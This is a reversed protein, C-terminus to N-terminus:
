GVPVGWLVRRARFGGICALPKPLAVGGLGYRTKLVPLALGVVLIGIRRQGQGHSALAADPLLLKRCPQGDHRGAYLARARRDEPDHRCKRWDEWRCSDLRAWCPRQRRRAPFCGHGRRCIIGLRVPARGVRAVVRHVCVAVVRALSAERWVALLRRLAGDEDELGQRFVQLGRARIGRLHGWEFAIARGRGIGSRQPLTGIALGGWRARGAEAKPHPRRQM